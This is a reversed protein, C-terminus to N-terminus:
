NRKSKGKKFGIKRGVFYAVVVLVLLVLIVIGSGGSSNQASGFTTLEEQTYIKLPITITEEVEKNYSDLYKMKLQVSEASNVYAESQITQFDDPNLDGVYHNEGSLIEIGDASLVQIQTGKVSSTGPNAIAFTLKMKGKTYSDQSDLNVKVLPTSYVRVTGLLEKTFENELSDEYTIDVPLLYPKSSADPSAVMNFKVTKKAGPGLTPVVIKNIGNGTSLVEDTVEELDLTVEVNRLAVNNINEIEMTLESSEGAKVTDIQFSNVQLKPNSDQVLVDFEYEYTGRSTHLIFEVTNIGITAEESVFVRFKAIVFGEADEVGSFAPILGLKKRSDKANVIRFFENNVMELEADQLSTDGTNSVKVNLYVFNGPSVPDPDQSSLVTNIGVASYATAMLSFLLTFLTLVKVIKNFRSKMKNQNVM